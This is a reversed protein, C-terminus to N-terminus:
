VKLFSFIMFIVLLIVFILLRLFQLIVYKAITKVASQQYFNKLAFFEYLLIWFFNLWILISFIGLGFKEKLMSLGLLILMGIFIFIYLYLSFVIHHAYFFRRRIYLLKLLLAYLPLSIFLLQPFLHIFQSFLEKWILTSNNNYKERLDIARYVLMRRFWGDKEGGALADDYEARNKYRVGMFAMTDERHRISDYVINFQERTMPVGGNIKSTQRAFQSSDTLKYIQTYNVSDKVYHINAEAFDVEPDYYSFFALFFLASTFIYMRIPDLFSSRKGQMYECAVVGPRFVLSKLTHFFKGDFHVLDYFFHKVLHWTSDVPERNEQGCFHCYKGVLEANCNLCNKEKREPM